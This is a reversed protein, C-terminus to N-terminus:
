KAPAAPAAPAKPAEQPAIKVKSADLEIKAPAEEAKPAPPAVKERKEWRNVVDITADIRSVSSEDAYAKKLEELAALAKARGELQAQCRAAGLKADFVLHTAGFGDALIVAYAKAAEDWKGLAESCFAIGMEPAGKLALPVKGSAALVSYIELAKEYDSEEGRECYAAALKMKLAEEADRGAYKAVALELEEATAMGSLQDAAAGDLGANHSKWAYYGVVALGAVALVALTKRGDKQWWEIVPILEEPTNM